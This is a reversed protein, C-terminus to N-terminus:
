AQAHVKGAGGHPRQGPMVIQATLNGGRRLLEAVKDEGALFRRGAIVKGASQIIGKLTHGQDRAAFIEELGGMDMAQELREQVQGRGAIAM